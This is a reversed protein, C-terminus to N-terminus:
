KKEVSDFKFSFDPTAMGSKDVLSQEQICNGGSEAIFHGSFTVDDGESLDGLAAYLDSEPSILTGSGIDSLSNNWTEVAVDNGLDISLVGKDGGLETEVTEVKGEWGSVRMSKGLLACIQAGREKRAQVVKIENGDVAADQGAKVIDM